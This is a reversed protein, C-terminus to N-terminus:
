AKLPTVDVWRREKWSELAGAASPLKLTLAM